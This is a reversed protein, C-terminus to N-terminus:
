DNKQEKMVEFMVEDFARHSFITQDLTETFFIEVDPIEPIMLMFVSTHLWMSDENFSYLLKFGNYNLNTLNIAKRVTSVMELNEAPYKRWFTDFITIFPRENSIRLNMREGKYEIWYEDNNENDQEYEIGHKDLLQLCLDKTGTRNSETNNDTQKMTNDTSSTTTSSETAADADNGQEMKYNRYVLRALGTLVGILLSKLSTEADDMGFGYTLILYAVISTTVIIIYTMNFFRQQTTPITMASGNGTANRHKLRYVVSDNGEM